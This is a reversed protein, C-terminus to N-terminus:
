MDIQFLSSVAAIIKLARPGPFTKWSGHSKPLLCGQVEEGSIGRAINWLWTSIILLALPVHLSDGEFSPMM